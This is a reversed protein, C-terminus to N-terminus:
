EVVGACEQVVRADAVGAARGVGGLVCVCVFSEGRASGEEEVGGYGREDDEGEEWGEDEGAVAREEAEPPGGHAAGL